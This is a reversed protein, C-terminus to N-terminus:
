IKRMRNRHGGQADAFHERRGTQARYLCSPARVVVAAAPEIRRGAPPRDPADNEPILLSLGVGIISFIFLVVFLLLLYFDAVM